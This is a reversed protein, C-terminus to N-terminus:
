YMWAFETLFEEENRYSRFSEHNEFFEYKLLIKKPNSFLNIRNKIVSINLYDDGLGLYGETEPSGDDEDHIFDRYNLLSVQNPLLRYNSKIDDFFNVINEESFPNIEAIENLTAYNLLLINVMPIFYTDDINAIRSLQM